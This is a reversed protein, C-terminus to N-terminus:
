NGFVVYLLGGFLMLMWAVSAVVAWYAADMVTEM